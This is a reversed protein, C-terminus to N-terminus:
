AFDFMMTFPDGRNRRLAELGYSSAVRQAIGSYGVDDDVVM